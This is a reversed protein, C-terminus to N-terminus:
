DVVLSAKPGKAIGTEWQGWSWVVVQRSKTSVYSKDLIEYTCFYMAQAREHRTQSLM